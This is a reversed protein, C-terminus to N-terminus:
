TALLNPKTARIVMVVKDGLLLLLIVVLHDKLIVALEFITQWLTFLQVLFIKIINQYGLRTAVPQCIM